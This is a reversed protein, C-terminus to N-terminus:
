SKKLFKELEERAVASDSWPTKKGNAEMIYPDTGKGSILVADGPHALSIARAIAERRDLIIECPKASIAARMEDVIKQPDEDYPDENALIIHDCFEEAVKAMGPRKWTDRGGGTNGLLCIKRRNPFAEYLKTLSDITHAYDVIVDFSQGAEVHEVRGKIGDIKEVAARITETSIGLASALTAAALINYINFLGELRTRIKVGKFVFDTGSDHEGLHYPEADKISFPITRARRAAPQQLFLKAEGDDANAVLYTTKKSRNALLRVISLKAARYKEYSGHSEIHEPSLNTFIFADLDIWKHRFQRAGESTMEVVVHTCGAQKARWLFHQMFFRGPMSMKHRNPESKGAIRFEITNSLATTYGAEEFIDALITTTSSKGKTGTVGVVFMSRAPFGYRIAGALALLYHYAPQAARFLSRPIIKKLLQKVSEM